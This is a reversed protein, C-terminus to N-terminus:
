KDTKPFRIDSYIPVHAPAPKQESKTKIKNM